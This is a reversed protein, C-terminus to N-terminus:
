LNLSKIFDNIKDMRASDSYNKHSSMTKIINNLEITGNAGNVGFVTKLSTFAATYEDKRNELTAKHSSYMMDVLYATLKIHTDKSMNNIVSNNILALMKDRSTTTQTTNLNKLENLLEQEAQQAGLKAYQKSSARWANLDKIFQKDRESKQNSLIPDFMEKFEAYDLNSTIIQRYKQNRFNVVIKEKPMLLTFFLAMKDDNLITKICADYALENNMLSKGSVVDGETMIKTLQSLYSGNKLQQLLPALNIQKDNDLADRVDGQNNYIDLMYDLRRPSILSKKDKPLSEWWQSAVKGNEGYKSQLFTSDTKYPITMIIHFRDEQAPDLQEVDYEMENEDNKESPNVAGWIMRLNNFKKGNISKFQMLEMVANRVKKPARNFEDFFIADIEDNALDKPRVLDLYIENTQEDKREKPVGILDVWPDLTSASFYKWRLKHREFADIITATKGVGHRGKFLVNYNNKIWFDLKANAIISM